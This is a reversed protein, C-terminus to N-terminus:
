KKAFSVYHKEGKYDVDYDASFSTRSLIKGRGFDYASFRIIHDKYSFEDWSTHVFGTISVEDGVVEFFGERQEGTGAQMLCKGNSIIEITMVGYPSISGVYTGRELGGMKSCGAALILAAALMLVFKKM